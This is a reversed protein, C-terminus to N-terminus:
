AYSLVNVVIFLLMQVNKKQVNKAFKVMEVTANISIQPFQGQKNVRRPKPIIVM